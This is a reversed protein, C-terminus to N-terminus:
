VLNPRPLLASSPRRPRPPPLPASPTASAIEAAARSAARSRARLAWDAAIILGSHLGFTNMAFEADGHLLAFIVVHVMWFSNNVSVFRLFRDEAGFKRVHRLGRAAIVTTAGLFGLLCFTGPIGTNVMLGIPGNYFRGLNVHETIIGYADYGQYPVPESAPGFGRGRILYHPILQIGIDRMTTRGDLTGRADAVAVADLNIGPLVALTRQAALPLQNGLAYVFVLGFSLALVGGAMRMVNFLRQSWGVFLLLGALMVLVGRHGGPLGIGVILIMTPVLWVASASFLRRLPVQILLLQMLAVSVIAFSQFRRIGTSESGFEFSIADNALDLFYFVWWLESRGALAIDSIVFTFGLMLHIVFLRLLQRESFQLMAFVFPFSACALQQIYVRGGMKDGGMMRLGLGHTRMLYLLVVAYGAAFLLMWRYRRLNEPFDSSYRRLAFLVAAGSWGLLAAIEWVFPRGPMLPVMLASGYTTIGLVASLRAHYPLTGLWGVGAAALILLPANSAMYFGFIVAGLLVGVWVFGKQVQMRAEIATM